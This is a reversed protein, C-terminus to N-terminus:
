PNLKNRLFNLDKFYCVFVEFRNDKISENLEESFKLADESNNFVYDYPNWFRKNTYDFILYKLQLLDKKNEIIYKDM